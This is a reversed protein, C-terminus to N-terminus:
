FSLDVYVMRHDSAMKMSPHDVIRGKEHLVRPLMEPSALILDVRSYTDEKKYHYTWSEGRSDFAPVLIALLRSGRKLMYRVAPSGRTDNFDGLILFSPDKEPPHRKAIFNRIALAELKRRTRSEPDDNRVTRRSKLHLDFLTWVTEGTKFEIELLGRKVEDRYEFYKFDLDKHRHVQRFPAKSLVALHRQEDAAKLLTTFPYDIGVARLDRQLEFLFPEKGMEQLALIDPNIEKLVRRLAEKEVEPKPYEKRYVGEVMRDASLYNKLNLSAVRVTEAQVTCGWAFLLLCLKMVKSGFRERLRLHVIFSLNIFLSSLSM